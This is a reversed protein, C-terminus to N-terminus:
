LEVKGSWKETDNEGLKNTALYHELIEVRDKLHILEVNIKHVIELLESKKM